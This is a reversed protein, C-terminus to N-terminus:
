KLDSESIRRLVVPRLPDSLYIRNTQVVKDVAVLKGPKEQVPLVALSEKEGIDKSRLYGPGPQQESRVSIAM